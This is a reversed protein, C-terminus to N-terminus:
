IHRERHGAGLDLRFQRLLGKWDQQEDMELDYRWGRKEGTVEPTASGSTQAFALTLAAVYPIPNAM